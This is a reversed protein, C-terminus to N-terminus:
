LRTPANRCITELDKAELLSLERWEGPGLPQLECSGFRIRILRLTPHGIKATMRRIQRNKGETLEVCLWVSPISRRVRIPPDRDPLLPQPEPIWAKCPKTKHGLIELGAQFQELAESEPQREVQAMYLKSVHREPDLLRSNLGAEDSLLLLGESDMDLRGLPYVKPPFGFDSLTRQEPKEPTFQSLVGYPKHFAIIM